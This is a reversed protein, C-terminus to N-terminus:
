GGAAIALDIAVREPLNIFQTNNPRAYVFHAVNINRMTFAAECYSLYYRWKRQFTEDFGLQGVERLRKEFAERWLKLTKAYHLGFSEFHHLYLDSTRAVADNIAGPSLLQGGPFIHKQIWDARKRGPNYRADPSIIVQLGAVGEPTLLENVKRFYIPLFAHGVAELMEISAIRDFKGELDRYDCLRLDIKQEMGARFVREKAMALQEKSLTLGTVHVGYEQAAFLAFGGWGCGIELVRMGPELGLKEALRRYKNNQAVRLDEGPTSFMASSYTMTDDLFLRYFDNSLDYHASINRRSNTRTNRRFFHGLLDLAGLLNWYWPKKGSAAFGPLQRVNHLLWEILATVDPSDWDGAMYAEGFGIEGHFVARRYFAERRIHLTARPGQGDGIVESSGDPLTMQLEGSPLSRLLKLVLKRALHTTM